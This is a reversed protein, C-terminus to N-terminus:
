DSKLCRLYFGNRISATERYVGANNISFLRSWARENVYTSTWLYTHTGMRLFAGAPARNGGMLLELESSGCFDSGRQTCDSATKIKDGVRASGGRWEVDNADLRSMGLERELIKFDNDSPVHWGNPCVGQTTEEKSGKLATELSYLRGYRDCNDVVGNYCWSGEETEYNLNEAFWCQNGVEETKYFKGDYNIDMGCIWERTALRVQRGESEEGDIMQAVEYYYEKNTELGSDVYYENTTTGIKRFPRDPSDTRYIVYGESERFGDWEIRIYDYAMGEQRLNEVEGVGETTALEDSSYESERDGSVATVKYYYTTAPDLGEDLYHRTSTHAIKEYEQGGERSRYVNYGESRQRDVWRLNIAEHSRTEAILGTPPDPVRLLIVLVVTTLILFVFGGIIGFSLKRKTNYFNLVFDMIQRIKQQM